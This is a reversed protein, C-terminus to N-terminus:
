LIVPVGDKDHHIASTTDFTGRLIGETFIGEATALGASALAMGQPVSLAFRRIDSKAHDIMRLVTPVIKTM